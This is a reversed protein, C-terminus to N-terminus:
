LKRARSQPDLQTNFSATFGLDEQVLIATTSNTLDPSNSSTEVREAVGDTKPQSGGTTSKWNSDLATQVGRSQTAPM